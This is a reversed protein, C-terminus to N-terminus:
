GCDMLLATITGVQVDVFGAERLLKEIAPGNPPRSGSKAIAEAAMGVAVKPPWNEPVSDDDSQV